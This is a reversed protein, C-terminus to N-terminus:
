RCIATVRYISLHYLLESETRLVSVLLEQTYNKPKVKM